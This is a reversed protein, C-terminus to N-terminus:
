RQKRTLKEQVEELTFRIRKEAAKLEMQMVEIDHKQQQLTLNKEHIKDLMTQLQKLNGSEPDYLDFLEKAENLTFGLRRGRLILKLLVRERETYIRRQNKRQPALLGQDEYFRITRPTIDFEKSLESISYTKESDM